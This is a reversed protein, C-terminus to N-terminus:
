MHFIAMIIGVIVQVIKVVIEQPEKKSNESQKGDEKEYNFMKKGEM